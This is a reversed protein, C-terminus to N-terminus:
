ICAAGGEGDAAAALAVALGIRRKSEREMWVDGCVVIGGRYRCGGWGGICVKCLPHAGFNVLVHAREERLLAKVTTHAYM